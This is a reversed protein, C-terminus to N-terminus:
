LDKFWNKIEDQTAQASFRQGVKWNAAPCIKKLRVESNEINSVSSTCVPIITKGTFDYSELFTDIIRPETNWWIPYALIITEYQAFNEIKGDIEPRADNDNMEVSSRSMKDHWNLDEPTYEVAPKIKYIDAGVAQSITQALEATNNTNSFYAVLIKTPQHTQEANSNGCATMLFITLASMLTLFFKQMADGLKVNFKEIMKVPRYSEKASRIGEIGLDEERNIFQMNSWERAAFQQNIYAYAGKVDFDAKEIHIVATDSNLKEGLIVAGGKIDFFDFDNLLELIAGREYPLAPYENLDHETYWVNLCEVCMKKIDETFNSTYQASPFLSIFANVHNKKRHYKRGSLNILDQTSYVYDFRNKQPLFEFNLDSIKELQSVFNKEANIFIYEAPNKKYADVIKRVASEIKDDACFPQLFNEGYRVFLIEDDVAWRAQYYKRWM